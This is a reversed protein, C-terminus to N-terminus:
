KRYVWTEPTITLASNQPGIDLGNITEILQPTTPEYVVPLQGALYDEWTYMAKQFEPPTRATLTADIYQNDRASDYDGANNPAGGEFLEDGSPLYDPDYTWSGWEALEWANPKAPDFAAGTVTNFPEADLTLSIGALSANSELERSASEMWDIGTAYQLTFQLKEGATIHAGCESPGTGPRVCTDTGGPTVQWGHQSLLTKAGQINLTWPDGKRALTPSLYKTVPYSTVPGITPKGYGHLPGNIIGEQDVLEQFAERFYLQQFIPGVKTNNFNYPFYSLQWPYVATLKYDSLSSPNGGVIAGAAPEEADVTPLYGVDITNSGTPDQLVDFEAAETTFPVVIFTTIHGAPLQAIGGYKPNFVLVLKGLSSLSQLKWPGDVVSWLPSTAFTTSTKQGAAQSALYNYVAGCSAVQTHCGGSGAKAGARTVDWAMPMPTIESLENNTFWTQSFQPTTIDMTVVYPKAARVNTVDDPLGTATFYIGNPGQNKMMNLWFVVDAADVPEGDSWKWNRKLTITVKHGTYVPPKALSLQTNLYPNLGTGFWYLPRYLLQQFDNANYVSDDAAEADDMFPFPYSPQGGPSLAYTATTGGDSGSPVSGSGGSTGGIAPGCAALLVALGAAVCGAALTRKRGGSLRGPGRQWARRV